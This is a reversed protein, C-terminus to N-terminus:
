VQRANEVFQQRLHLTILPSRLYILQKVGCRFFQTFRSDLLRLRHIRVSTVVVHVHSITLSVVFLKLLGFIGTSVTSNLRFIFSMKCSIASLFLVVLTSMRRRATATYLYM